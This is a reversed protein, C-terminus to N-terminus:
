IESDANWVKNAAFQELDPGPKVRPSSPLQGIVEM